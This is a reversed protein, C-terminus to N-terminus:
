KDFNETVPKQEPAAPIFKVVPISNRSIYVEGGNEVMELIEDFKKEAELIEITLM